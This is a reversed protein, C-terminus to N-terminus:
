HRVIGGKYTAPSEPVLANVTTSASVNLSGGVYIAGYQSFPLTALAQFPKGHDSVTETTTRSGVLVVLQLQYQCYYRKTTSEIVLTQEEGPNLIIRNVVFFAQGSPTLAVPGSADLDFDVQITPGEGQGGGVLFLTGSLPPRCSEDIVNIGTIRVSPANGTIQITVQSGGLWVGEGPFQGAFARSDGQQLQNIQSLRASSLRVVGPLVMGQSNLSPGTQVANIQVPAGAALSYSASPSSASPSSASPSGGSIFLTEYLTIPTVIIAAIVASGIAIQWPGSLRGQLDRLRARWRSKQPKSDEQNSTERAPSSASASRAAGLLSRETAEIEKQGRWRSVAERFSDDANARALLVLALERAVQKDGPVRRLAGFETRGTAGTVVPMRIVAALSEWLQGGHVGDAMEAVRGLIAALADVQDVGDDAM